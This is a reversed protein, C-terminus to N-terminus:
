FLQEYIERWIRRDFIPSKGWSVEVIDLLFSAGVAVVVVVLALLLYFTQYEPSRSTKFEMLQDKSKSEDVTPNQEENADVQTGGHLSHESPDELLARPTEEEEMTVNASELQHADSETLFEDVIKEIRSQENALEQDEVKEEDQRDMREQLQQLRGEFETALEKYKQSNQQETLLNENLEDIQLQVKFVEAEASQLQHRLEREENMNSVEINEGVLVLEDNIEKSLNSVHELSKVLDGGDDYDNDNSFAGGSLELDSGNIALSTSSMARVQKKMGLLNRKLGLLINAYMRKDNTSQWHVDNEKRDQNEEECRKLVESHQKGMKEKMASLQEKTFDCEAQLSEVQVALTSARKEAEDKELKLKKREESIQKEYIKGKSELAEVGEKSVKIENLLQDNRDMLDRVDEESKDYLTKFHLCEDESYSLSRQVDALKQLLSSKEEIMRKVAEKAKAEYNGKDEQYTILLKRYDEEPLDKAVVDLENELIDLRSLLEDEKVFAQFAEESSSSSNAIMRQMTALKQELLQERNLADQIYKSLQWLERAKTNQEGGVFPLVRGVPKAPVGFAETGDPNFLNTVAIICGHTVKKSNETVDVGFQVVDGSRLEVIESDDANRGVQVSNVYTGNSSKTDQILFKGNEYWIVAHSRSLVKCDFILNNQSPKCKAVARGVKCPEKLNIKREQFPHSNSKAGFVAYAM